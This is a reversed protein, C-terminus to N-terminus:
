APCCAVASDEAGPALASLVPGDASARVARPGEDSRSVAILHEDLCPGALAPAVIDAMSMVRANRVARRLQEGLDRDYITVVLRVGPLVGEVVLACRLAVRDDRSVVVVADVGAGLARRIERDNPARLAVVRADVDGLARRVVGVLRGEGIVVIRRGSAADRAADATSPAATTDAGDAVDADTISPTQPPVLQNFTTVPHGRPVMSLM